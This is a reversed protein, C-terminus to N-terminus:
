PCPPPNSSTYPTRVWSYATGSPFTYGPKNYPNSDSLVSVAGNNPNINMDWMYENSDGGPTFSPGGNNVRNSGSTSDKMVVGTSTNQVANVTAAPIFGVLSQQCEVWSTIGLMGNHWAVLGNSCAGGCIGM